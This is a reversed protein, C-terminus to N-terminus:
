NFEVKVIANRQQIYLNGAEDAVFSSLYRVNDVAVGNTGGSRYISFPTEQDPAPALGSTYVVDFSGANSVSKSWVVIKGTGEPLGAVPWNGQVLNWLTFGWSTDAVVGNLDGNPGVALSWDGKVTNGSVVLGSAGIAKVTDGDQTFLGREPLFVSGGYASLLGKTNTFAASEGVGDEDGVKVVGAFIQMSQPTIKWIGASHGAVQPKVPSTWRGRQGAADSVFLNGADDFTIGTPNMFGTARAANPDSTVQVHTRVVGTNPNIVQVRSSGDCGREALWLEGQHFVMAGNRSVAGCEGTLSGALLTAKGNTVTPLAQAVPTPDVPDSGGGGCAVLLIAASITTLTRSVNM